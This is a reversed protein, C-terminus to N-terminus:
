INIKIDDKKFGPVVLDLQYETDTEKLNTKVNANSTGFTPFDDNFFLDFITKPRYNILSRELM